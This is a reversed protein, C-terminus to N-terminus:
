GMSTVETSDMRAEPFTVNAIPVGSRVGAKRRRSCAGCSPPRRPGITTSTRDSGSQCSARAAAPISTCRGTSSRSPLDTARERTQVGVNLPQRGGSPKSRGLFSAAERSALAAGSHSCVSAGRARPANASAISRATPRRSSSCAPPVSSIWASRCSDLELGSRRDVARSRRSGRAGRPSCRPRAPGRSSRRFPGSASRDADYDLGFDFRRPDRDRRRVAVPSDISEFRTRASPLASKAPRARAVDAQLWGPGSTSRDFRSGM